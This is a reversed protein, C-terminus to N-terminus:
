GIYVYTDCMLAFFCTFNRKCHASCKNENKRLNFSDFFLFEFAIKNESTTAMKFTGHREFHQLIYM